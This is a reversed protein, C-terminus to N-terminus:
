NQTQKKKQDAEWQKWCKQDDGCRGKENIAMALITPTSAGGTSGGGLGDSASVKIKVIQTRPLPRVKVKLVFSVTGIKGAPVRKISKCRKAKGAFWRKPVKVCVKVNAADGDGRNNVSAKLKVRAGPRVKKPAKAKIKALNPKPPAACEPPTGIEGVPCDAAVVTWDRTASPPTMGLPNTLTVKFSHAGVALGTVTKPSSCPTPAAGDLSCEFSPVVGGPPDEVHFEFTADTATTQAPPGSTIVVKPQLSGGAIATGALAALAFTALAPLVRILRGFIAHM